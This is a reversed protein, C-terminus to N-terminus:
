RLKPRDEGRLKLCLEALSAVSKIEEKTAEERIQSAVIEEVPRSKLELLFYSSLNQRLGSEDTFIPERHLLLEM